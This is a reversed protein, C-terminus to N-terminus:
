ATERIFVRTPRRADDDREVLAPVGIGKIAKYQQKLKDLDQWGKIREASALDEDGRAAEPKQYAWHDGWEAGQEVWRILTDVDDKPLPKPHHDRPPM